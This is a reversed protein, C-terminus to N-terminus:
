DEKSDFLGVQGLASHPAFIYAFSFLPFMVGAYLFSFFDFTKNCSSFELRKTTFLCM